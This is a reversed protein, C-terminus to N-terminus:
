LYKGPYLARDLVDAEEAPELVDYKIKLLAKAFGIAIQTTVRLLHRQYLGWLLAFVAIIFWFTAM